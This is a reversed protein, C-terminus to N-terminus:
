PAVIFTITQDSLTENIINLWINGFSEFDMTLSWM